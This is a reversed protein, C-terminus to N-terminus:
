PHLEIYYEPVYSTPYFNTKLKTQGRELSSYRMASISTVSIV